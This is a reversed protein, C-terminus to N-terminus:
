SHVHFVEDMSIRGAGVVLNKSQVLQPQNNQEIDVNKLFITSQFCLMQLIELRDRTFVEM